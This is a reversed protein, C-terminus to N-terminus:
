PSISRTRRPRPKGSLWPRSVWPVEPKGSTKEIHAVAKELAELAKDQEEPSNIDVKEKRHYSMFRAFRDESFLEKYSKGWFYIYTYAVSQEGSRGDWAKVQEIARALKPHNSTPSLATTWVRVM